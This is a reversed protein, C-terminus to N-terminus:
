DVGMMQKSSVGNLNGFIISNEYSLLRRIYIKYFSSNSLVYCSNDLGDQHPRYLIKQTFFALLSQVTWDSVSRISGVVTM